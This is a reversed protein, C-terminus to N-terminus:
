QVHIIPTYTFGYFSDLKQCLYNALKILNNEILYFLIMSVFYIVIVCITAFETWSLLFFPFCRTMIMIIDFHFLYASYSFKGFNRLFVNQFINVIMNNESSLLTFLLTFSWFQIQRSRYRFSDFYFIEGVVLGILSIIISSYNLLFQVQKTKILSMLPECNNILIYILATQSGIFFVTFQSKLLHCTKSGFLIDKASIQFFNFVQDYVTWIM